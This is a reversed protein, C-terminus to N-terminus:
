DELDRQSTSKLLSVSQAPLRWGKKKYPKLIGPGGYIPHDSSWMLEWHGKKSPALLPEPIPHYEFDNSLNVMLLRDEGEKGFYRIVFVFPDLVAGDIAFRDQMSITPDERRIKLLDQYLKYVEEHTKRENLNLKSQNFGNIPDPLIKHGGSSKYASAFSPFQEMFKRRGERVNKSLVESEYDAFFLFPQSAAFEQGMFILPTEPALLLLATMIRYRAPDTLVHLREGRLENAVQDHNQLYFVFASAPESTVISGREKGQWSYAQGQYLYGRKYLSIFEQPRGQYDTYYGERRGKLAVIASHHFDDNWVGDFGYGGKEIPQILKIDQPESEAILILKRSTCQRVQQTLEVFIHPTSDDHIDQTSDIRLGDLHFENVWYCANDIIFKRVEKSHPGDYNISNGWATFHRDSLYDNSYMGTYNGDPGFHNYVVDLIVSLELAHARDVFRKFAEPDGYLHSPAYLSVGDYGQNWRGPFDAIPMIELVTVGLRKLEELQEIAADFTGEPTYAGIHMEYIIQGKLECGKWQQDHWQYQNPNVIMSPGHPGQPQFRSCPDPFKHSGDIKYWYLTEPKLHSAEGIFYGGEKRELPILDNSPEIVVEITSCQPAWVKFTVKDKKSNAGLTMEWQNILDRM